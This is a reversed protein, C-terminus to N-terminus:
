ATDNYSAIFSDIHKVLERVSGFSGAVRGGLSLHGVSRHEFIAVTSAMGPKISTVCDM